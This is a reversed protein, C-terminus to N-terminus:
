IMCGDAWGDADPVAWVKAWEDGIAVIYPGVDSPGMQYMFNDGRSAWRIHALDSFPSWEKV